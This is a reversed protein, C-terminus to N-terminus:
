ITPLADISKLIESAIAERKYVDAMGEPTDIDLAFFVPGDVREVWGVWWCHRGQWGTKARLIWDNEAKNILMDKLLLQHEIRFPM